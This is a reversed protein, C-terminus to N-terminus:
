RKLLEAVYLQPRVLVVQRSALSMLFLVGDRDIFTVGALDLTLRYGLSLTGECHKRLEEVWDSIVQGELRLTVRKSQSGVVSIKLM